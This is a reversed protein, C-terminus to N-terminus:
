VLPYNSPHFTKLNKNANSMRVPAAHLFPIVDFEDLVYLTHDNM